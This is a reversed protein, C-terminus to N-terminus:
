DIGIEEITSVNYGDPIPNSGYVADYAAQTLIKWDDANTGSPCAIKTTDVGFTKTLLTLAVLYAGNETPHNYEDDVMVALKPYHRYVDDMALGAEAVAAGTEEGIARCAAATLWTMSEHTWGSAALTPHGEARGWTEYIVPAAGNSVAMACVARVDNFFTGPDAAPVTAAEQMVIFDYSKAALAKVAKKGVATTKDTIQGLSCGGETVADVTVKYGCSKALEAFLKPMDCYYTYSNGLMLISYEKSKDIPSPSSTYTVKERKEAERDTDVAPATNGSQKTEDAKGPEGQKTVPIDAIDTQKEPDAPDPQGTVDAPDSPKATEDPAAEDETVVSGNEDTVPAKTLFVVETEDGGPADEEGKRCACLPAALTLALVLAIMRKAKM